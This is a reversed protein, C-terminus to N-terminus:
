TCAWKKGRQNVLQRAERFFQTWAEGKLKRHATRDFDDTAWIDVGYRKLFEDRVPQEFGLESFSMDCHHNGLRMEIGDVDMDLADGVWKLWWNRSDAFWPSLAGLTTREKGRAFALVGFREPTGGLLAPFAEAPRAGEDLTHFAHLGDFGCTAANSPTGPYHDFEIGIQDLPQAKSWQGHIDSTRNVLGYTLRTEEGRPGFVHVMDMFRNTFSGSRVPVILAVYKARIDLNELRIVRSRRLQATPRPGSPTHRYVPYDEVTDIRAIPSTFLQYTTNDDSVLIHVDRASIAAPRDDEKVLDIRTFTDNISPGFNGPRRAMLLDRRQAAFHTAWTVPGGIRPIRGHQRAIESSEGHTVHFAMDLPKIIAHIELGHRHAAKVGAELLEGVHQRTQEVYKNIGIPFHDLQGEEYRGNFIWQVRKTGWSAIEKFYDDFMAENFPGPILDDPFDVAAELLFGDHKRPHVPYAPQKLAHDGLIRINRVLANGSFSLHLLGVLPEGRRNPSEVMLQGDIFARQQTRTFEFVIRCSPGRPPAPQTSTSRINDCFSAIHRPHTSDHTTLNISLEGEWSGMAHTGGSSTLEVEVRVADHGHGPVQVIFGTWAGCQLGEPTLKYHTSDTFWGKPLAPGEFREDMLLHM